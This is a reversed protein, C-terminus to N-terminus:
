HNFPLVDGEGPGPMYRTQLDEDHIEQVESCSLIDGGGAAGCEDAEGLFDSERTEYYFMELMAMALNKKSTKWTDTQILRFAEFDEDEGTNSVLWFFWTDGEKSLYYEDHRSGFGEYYWDCRGICEPKGPILKKIDDWPVVDWMWSQLSDQVESDEMIGSYIDMGEKELAIEFLDKMKELDKEQKSNASIRDYAGECWTLTKKMEM